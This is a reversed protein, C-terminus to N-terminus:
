RHALWFYPMETGPLVQINQIASDHVFFVSARYMFLWPADEWVLRQIEEYAKARVDVDFESSGEDILRDVDPNSYGGPNWLQGANSSHLLRRFANDPDGTSGGWGLFFLDFKGQEVTDVYTPWDSIVQLDVDFGADRLYGAVAQGVEVDSPYRSSPSLLTVAAGEAGAEQLLERARDPDYEYFGVPVSWQVAEVLSRSPTGAGFLVREIIAEKDVAYNAAQRVRVDDFPAKTVNMPYIMSRGVIQAVTLDPNASLREIDTPLIRLAVDAEGTDILLARTTADTVFRFNLTEFFPTDGYYADNRVLTLHDGTVWEELAYPGSGVPRQGWDDGLQQHATPSIIGADPHALNNRLAPFLGDTVLTITTEGDVRVEKIPAFLAQQGCSESAMREITYAVAEANLPTGDHFTVDPRLEFTWETGDESISERTVLDPEPEMNENFTYLRSYIHYKVMSQDGSITECTDIDPFEAPVLVDLTTDEAQAMASGLMTFLWIVIIGLLIHPQLRTRNRRHPTSM